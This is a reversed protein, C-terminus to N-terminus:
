QPRPKPPAGGGGSPAGRAPLYRLLLDAFFCALALLSWLPWGAGWAWSLRTAGLLIPDGPEAAATPAAVAPDIRTM